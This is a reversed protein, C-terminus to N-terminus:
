QGGGGFGRGGGGGGGGLGPIRLGGSAAPSATQTGGSQSTATIIEQGEELGSIVETSSDNSIGIVIPQRVPNGRQLIEVAVEDGLYKIAASPITLVDQRAATIIETSVSMGPRVREDDTDFVILVGYTVVGSSITGLTDVEKVAGSISLDDIADFTLTVKQEKQIKVIDVENLSIEAIKQHSLVTALITGSSVNDGVHANIETVIGDYPARIYADALKDRADNLSIQRQRITLEQSAIDLPDAGKKLDELAQTRERVNEEAAMLDSEDPGNELDKLSERKEIVDQEASALDLPQNQVAEKLTRESSLLNTKGDSLTRQNNLLSTLHNNMTNSADSVTARLAEVSALTEYNRKKRLDTWENLILLEYKTTESITQVTEITETLLTEFM